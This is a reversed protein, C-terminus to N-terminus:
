AKDTALIQGAAAEGAALAGEMYGRFETAMHTGAWHIPGVPARLGAGYHTLQGPILFPSSAGASWEEDAWVQLHFEQPELAESGLAQALLGLVAKRRADGELPDVRLAAKGSFLAILVGPGPEAGGIDLVATVSGSTSIVRGSLGKERWFPKDYAIVAKTNRGNPFRQHLLRRAAPLAPSFAIQQIMAPACAFVLRAAEFRTTDTEVVVGSGSWEVRRAPSALFVDGALDGAMGESVAQSGWMHESMGGTEMDSMFRPGGCGRLKQLLELASVEEPMVGYYAGPLRLLANRALGPPLMERVWSDYTMLDLKAALEGEWPNAPLADFTQYLKDFAKTYEAFDAESMGPITTLPGRFTKDDHICVQEGATFQRILPVSYRRILTCIRTHKQSVWQGGLDIRRGLRPSQPSLTLGGVRDRAEIVAVSQGAEKLTLAAYLGSLGAGIVVTDRRIVTKM